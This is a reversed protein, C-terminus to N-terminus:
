RMITDMVRRETAVDLAATAEDLLVLRVRERRILARALALRQRQVFLSVRRLSLSATDVPM